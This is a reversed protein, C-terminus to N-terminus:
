ICNIVIIQHKEWALASYVRSNLNTSRNQDDNSFGCKKRGLFVLTVTILRWAQEKKQEKVPNYM